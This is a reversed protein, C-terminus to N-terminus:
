TIVCSIRNGRNINNWHRGWFRATEEKDIWTGRDQTPNCADRILQRQRRAFWGGDGVAFVADYASFWSWVELMRIADLQTFHGSDPRLRGREQGSRPPVLNLAYHKAKLIYYALHSISAPTQDDHPREREWGPWRNQSRARSTFDIPKIGLMNPYLGSAKLEAEAVIPRFDPDATWVIGHVQMVIRRDAEGPLKKAMVDFEPACVGHLELRRLLRQVHRKMSSWQLEPSTTTTFGADWCATFLFTRVFANAHITEFGEHTAQVLAHQAIRRVHMNSMPLHGAVDGSTTLADMLLRDFKDKAPYRSKAREICALAKANEDNIKRLTDATDFQWNATAPFFDFRSM